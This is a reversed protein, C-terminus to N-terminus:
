ITKSASRLAHCSINLAVPLGSIHTPATEINVGLATVKGGFGFPGLGIKNVGQLIRKELGALSKDRNKKDIPRLLAHKALRGAEDFTAGIGIGIVFSPCADPGAIKVSQVIWDIIAQSGVTPNFMRAVSKNESGFGKPLVALRLSRGKVLKISVVAPTFAVNVKRRLPDEVISARLHARKYGDKIGAQIAQSLNGKVFVEDGLEVFVFPLGTDQCIALKERRAVRSNKIITELAKRAIKSKEKPLARKLMRLVDPRLNTNARIALDSVAKKIKGAEIIRM